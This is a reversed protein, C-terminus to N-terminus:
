ENFEDGMSFLSMMNFLEFELLIWVYASLLPLFSISFANKILFASNYLNFRKWVRAAVGTGVELVILIILMPFVVRLSFILSDMFLKLAVTLHHLEISRMSSNLPFTAYTAYFSSLLFGVGGQVAFSLLAVILFLNGFTTVTGGTPSTIGSDSEGRFQDIIAGAYQLSLFPLSLILGFVMGIVTEVVVFQIITPFNLAEIFTTLEFFSAVTAPVGLVAATLVRLFRASGMAWYFGVFSYLLALPRITGLVLLAIFTHWGNVLLLDIVDDLVINM